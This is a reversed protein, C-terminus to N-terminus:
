VTQGAIKDAVPLEGSEVLPKTRWGPSKLITGTGGAQDPRSHPRVRQERSMVLVLNEHTVPSQPEVVMSHTPPFAAGGTVRTFNVRFPM